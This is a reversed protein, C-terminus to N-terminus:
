RKLQTRLRANESAERVMLQRAEARAKDAASLGTFTGVNM